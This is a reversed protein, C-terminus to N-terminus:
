YFTICRIPDKSSSNEKENEEKTKELVSQIKDSLRNIKGKRIDVKAIAYVRNCDPELLRYAENMIETAKDMGEVEFITGMPTLHFKIGKDKLMKVIRAVYPSVSEGKDTPFMTFDVIVSIDNKLSSM